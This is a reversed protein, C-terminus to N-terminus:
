PPHPIGMHFNVICCWLYIRRIPDWGVDMTIGGICPVNRNLAISERITTELALDGYIGSALDMNDDISCLAASFSCDVGTNM